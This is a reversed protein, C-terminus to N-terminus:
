VHKWDFKKMQIPFLDFLEGSYYFQYAIAGFTYSKDKVTITSGGVKPDKKPKSQPFGVNFLTALIEPRDDIPFGAKEWQIKVQKLFVAAYMYSYFHNRYSTLRDMREKNISSSDQAKFDLLSEYEKGLYYESSPDKLFAEINKATHEKIGTVGFSFTSEVSLIKLPGIWKKYAERNSNFLRIQEGVLCAVILRSEVGTMLSVSDILEKDKAVAIKFDSWEAINMWAFVSKKDYNPWKNLEEQLKKRERRFAQDNKLEYEVADLMRLIENENECKKYAHLIFEANKPRFRNLLLIRQLAEHKRYKVSTSDEEFSQNYKDQIEQFYRNNSDVSGKEDTWRFKIAVYSATLFFGILAFGVLFTYFPIKFWRSRFFRKLSIFKYPELFLSLL